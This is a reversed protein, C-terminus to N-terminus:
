IHRWATRRRISRIQCPSVGYEASVVSTARTDVRIAVVQAETLKERPSGPMRPQIGGNGIRSRGKRRMDALNDFQTGLRLHDPNICSPNDCKHMVVMGDPVQTGNAVEWSVRHAARTHHGHKVTGYGGKSAAGLWLWCGSNPEPMSHHALQAAPSPYRPLRRRDIKAGDM